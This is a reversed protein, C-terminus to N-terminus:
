TLYSVFIVFMSFHIHFHDFTITLHNVVWTYRAHLISRLKISLFDETSIIASTRRTQSLIYDAIFYNGEEEMVKTM